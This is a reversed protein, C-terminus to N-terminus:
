DRLIELANKMRCLVGLEDAFHISVCAHVAGQKDQFVISNEGAFPPQHWIGADIKFGMSGDFVFAVFDGPSINDSKNKSLFLIFPKKEKPFFIQSGDPHYNAEHTLISCGIAKGTIYSDNVAENSAYCLNNEWYIKFLGEVIGGGKGLTITRKGFYPWQVIDVTENEYDTVFNGFGKTNEETAVVVPVDVIQYKEICTYDLVTNAFFLSPITFLIFLFVNKM